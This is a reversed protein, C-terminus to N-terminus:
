KNTKNKKQKKNNTMKTKRKAMCITLHLDRTKFEYYM